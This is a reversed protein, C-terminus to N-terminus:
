YLPIEKFQKPWMINQCFCVQGHSPPRLPGLSGHQLHRDQRHGPQAGPCLPQCHPQRQHAGHQCLHHLQPWERSHLLHRQHQAAPSPCDRACNAGTSSISPIDTCFPLMTQGATFIKCRIFHHMLADSLLTLGTNSWRHPTNHHIFHYKKLLRDAM